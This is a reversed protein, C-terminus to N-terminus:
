RVRKVRLGLVSNSSLYFAGLVGRRITITDGPRLPLHSEAEAEEWIQGNVLSVVAEGRPKYSVTAIRGSLKDLEEPQGAQKRKMQPTM